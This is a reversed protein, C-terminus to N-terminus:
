LFNIFFRFFLVYTRVSEGKNIDISPLKLFYELKAKEKTNRILLNLTTINNDDVYNIDITKLGSITKFMEFSYYSDVFYNLAGKTIILLLIM